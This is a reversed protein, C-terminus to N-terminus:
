NGISPMFKGDGIDIYEAQHNGIYINYHKGRLNSQAATIHLTLLKNQQEDLVECLLYENGSKTIVKRRESKAKLHIRM